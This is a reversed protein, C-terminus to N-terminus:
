GMEKLYAETETKIYDFFSERNRLLFWVEKLKKWKKLEGNEMKALVVMKMDLQFDNIYHRNDPTEVNVPKWVILKSDLEDKFYTKLCEETYAELDRCTVCRQYGFFYYVIIQEPLKQESLKEKNSDIIKSNVDESSTSQFEQFIMATVTSVVFVLLVITIIQKKKM